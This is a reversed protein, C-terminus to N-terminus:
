GATPKFIVWFFDASHGVDPGRAAVPQEQKLCAWSPHSPSAPVSKEPGQAGHEEHSGVTRLMETGYSTAHTAAAAAIALCLLCTLSPDHAHSKIRNRSQNLSLAGSIPFRHGPYGWNYPWQVRRTIVWQAWRQSCQPSKQIGMITVRMSPITQHIIGM